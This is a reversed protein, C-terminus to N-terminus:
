KAERAEDFITKKEVRTADNQQVIPQNPKTASLAPLIRTGYNEQLWDEYSDGAEEIQQKVMDHYGKWEDLAKKNAEPTGDVYYFGNPTHKVANAPDEGETLFPHRQKDYGRYTNYPTIDKLPRVIEGKDDYFGGIDLWYDDNLGAPMGGRAIGKRYDRKEKPYRQEYAEQVRQWNARSPKKAYEAYIRTYEEPTM